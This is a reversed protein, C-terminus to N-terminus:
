RVIVLKGVENRYPSEFKYFYVGSATKSGWLIEYQGASKRGSVLSEILRGSADYIRLRIMAPEPLALHFLAKGKVPNTRLGFSFTQPIDTSGEAVGPDHTEIITELTDNIPNEDSDHMTFVTVTYAGSEFTFETAFTVQISDGPELDNVTQTKLYGGPEIICRVPFTETNTGFNKVTAKPNIITDEPVLEPIDISIPGVDLIVTVEIIKELTDNTPNEDGDLRTFITVTYLGGQYFTFPDSFTVQISELAPLYVAPISSYYGGPEITCTMNFTQATLGFNKVTTIPSVTFDLAVTDPINLSLPGVDITNFV